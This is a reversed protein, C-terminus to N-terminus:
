FAVARVAGHTRGISLGLRRALPGLRLRLVRLGGLAPACSRQALMNAVKGSAPKASRRRLLGLTFSIKRRPPGFFSSAGPCARVLAAAANM